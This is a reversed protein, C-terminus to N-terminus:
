TFFLRQFRRWIVDGIEGFFPIAYTAYGIVDMLHWFVLSPQKKM